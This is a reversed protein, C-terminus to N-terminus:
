RITCYPKLNVPKKLGLKFGLARCPPLRVKTFQALIVDPISADEDEDSSLGALDDGDDLDDDAALDGEYEEEDGEGDQESCGGGGDAM